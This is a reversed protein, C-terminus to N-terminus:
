QPSISLTSTAPTDAFWEVLPSCILPRIGVAREIAADRPVAAVCAAADYRKGDQVVIVRMSIQELSGINAIGLKGGEYLLLTRVVGAARQQHARAVIDLAIGHHIVESGCREPKRSIARWDCVWRQVNLRNDFHKIGHVVIGHRQTIVLEIEALVNKFAHKTLSGERQQM